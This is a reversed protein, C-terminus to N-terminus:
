CMNNADNQQRRVHYSILSVCNTVLLMMPAVVLSRLAALQPLCSKMLEHERILYDAYNHQGYQHPM